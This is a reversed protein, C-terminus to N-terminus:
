ELYTKACRFGIYVVATNPPKRASDNKHMRWSGYWWSGGMTPQDHSSGQDSVWEWVNAGMDYLGNVGRITTGAPVHGHGRTLKNTNETPSKIGCDDLCNAGSTKEGTPFLYTKDKSFPHPPNQRRETYAAERWENETPLRKANWKCFATAEEFTVHVVPETEEALDGYPHSWIWGPKKVWGNEYVKGGGNEEATTKLGTHQIFKRFMGITVETKDILFGNILQMRRDSHGLCLSSINLYIVLM